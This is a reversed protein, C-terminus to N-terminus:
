MSSSAGVRTSSHGAYNSTRANDGVGNRMSPTVEQMCCAQSWVRVAGLSAQKWCGDLAAEGLALAQM